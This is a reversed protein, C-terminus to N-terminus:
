QLIRFFANDKCVSVLVLSIHFGFALFVNGLLNHSDVFLVAIVAEKFLSQSDAQAVSAIHGVGRVVAPEVLGVAVAKVIGRSHDLGFKRVRRIHKEASHLFPLIRSFDIHTHPFLNAIRTKIEYRQM